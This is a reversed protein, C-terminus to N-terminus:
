PGSRRVEPAASAAAPGRAAPPQGQVPRQEAETRPARAGSAAKPQAAQAPVHPRSDPPTAAAPVTHTYHYGGAVYGASLLIAGVLGATVWPLHKRPAREALLRGLEEDDGAVDTSDLVEADSAATWDAATSGSSPAGLLDEALTPDAAISEQKRRRMRDGM